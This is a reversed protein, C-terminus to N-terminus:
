GSATCADTNSVKVSWDFWDFWVSCDFWVIPVDRGACVARGTCGVRGTRGICDSLGFRFATAGAVILLSASINKETDGSVGSM